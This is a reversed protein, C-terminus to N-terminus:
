DINLDALYTALDNQAAALRARAAALEGTMAELRTEQEGLKKMYRAYLESARDISGMNQRVRNQDDTIERREKELDQITRNADAILSQRRAAERVAAVVKDSVKGAKSYALLSNMDYSTVEYSQRDVRQQAVALTASKGPEVTVEFRASDSTTEVPKADGTFEWADNRPHEVFIARARGPDKNSFTYTTTSQQLTTMELLGRVIRLRQVTNAGTSKQDAAVDLDLAYALLRKEGKAVHGIQADGAYAGADYVAIPGPMLPMDAANTIQVGRMPHKSGDRPNFISVRRGDVGTNIIPIMASRLREVTVPHDVEFQFVEGSEVARAQAEPAYEAMAAGSLAESRFAYGGPAKAAPAPAEAPRTPAGGRRTREGSADADMALRLAKGMEFAPAEGGEYSRALVGQETPVPLEPRDLYLPEYLDMKFSVPRGSVLSLTVGKWDEDSTNEVIAWGQMTFRDNAKPAAKEDRGADPLVLRYSTKWVPTEQVYAVAIERAGEGSLAIDVTKTRDARHEALAALAKGLEEALAPDTLTVGRMDYLNVTRIGANTLVHVHPIGVPATDKGSPMMRVEGGLITGTVAGENTAFSVGSGRLRALLTGLPPEDSLDVGFSALRRALPEKSAYGVSDIRGKGRSLDLVVMSKLIDNVQETKFRLQVTANGDILGRRDISAVGSRYLTIRRIPLNDAAKADITRAAPQAFAPALPIIALALGAALALAAPYKM